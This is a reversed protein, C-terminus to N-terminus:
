ARCDLLVKGIHEGSDFYEHALAAQSLPFVRDTAVAIHGSELLPWVIRRTEAM